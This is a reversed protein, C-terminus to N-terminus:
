GLGTVGMDTLKKIIEDCRAKLVAKIGDVMQPPYDIDVTPVWAAPTPPHDPPAPPGSTVQMMVIRGGHDFGDLAAKTAMYNQWLGSVQPINNLDM